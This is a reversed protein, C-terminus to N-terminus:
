PLGQFFVTLFRRHGGVILKDYRPTMEGKVSLTVGDADRFVEGTRPEVFRRLWHHLGPGFSYNRNGRLFLNSGLGASKRPIRLENLLRMLTPSSAVHFGLPGNETVKGPPMKDVDFNQGLTRVHGGLYSAREYLHVEHRNGLLYGAVLGSAGGGVIAIRMRAGRNSHLVSCCESSVSSVPCHKLKRELNCRITSVTANNCPIALSLIFPKRYEELVIKTM